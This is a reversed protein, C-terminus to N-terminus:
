KERGKQQRSIAILIFVIGVVPPVLYSINLPIGWMHSLVLNILSMLLFFGGTVYLVIALKMSEGRITM